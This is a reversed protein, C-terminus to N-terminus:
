FYKGHAETIRDKIYSVSDEDNEFLDFCYGDEGLLGGPILDGEENPDSITEAYFCISIWRNEPDDDIVDMMTLIKEEGNNDVNVRLSYSIGPRSKFSYVVGELSELLNVIESFATKMGNNDTTWGNLLDSVEKIKM